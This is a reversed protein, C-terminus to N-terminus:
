GELTLPSASLILGAFPRHARTLKDPRGSTARVRSAGRRLLTASICRRCILDGAGRGSPRFVAGGAITSGTVDAAYAKRPGPLSRNSATTIRFSRRILAAATPLAQPATKTCGHPRAAGRRPGSMGGSRARRLCRRFEARNPCRADDTRFVLQLRERRRLGHNAPAKSGSRCGVSEQWIRPSPLGSGADHPLRRLSTKGRTARLASIRLHTRRLRLPRAELVRRVGGQLASTIRVASRSSV